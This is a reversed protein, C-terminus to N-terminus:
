QIKLIKKTESKGNLEYKVYYIGPHFGSLDIRELANANGKFVIQNQNNHISIIGGSESRDINIKLYNAAPNPHVEFYIKDTKGAKKDRKETEKQTSELSSLDQAMGKKTMLGADIHTYSQYPDFSFFKTTGIGNSHDVDSNMESNQSIKTFNLNKSSYYKIYFDGKPIGSFHIKGEENIGRTSMSKAKNDYLTAYVGSPIKGNDDQVGNANLDFWVDTIVKAGKYFGADINTVIESGMVQFTPSIYLGEFKSVDSNNDDYNDGLMPSSVYDHNVKYVIFYEGPPIKDFHLNEYGEISITKRYLVADNTYLSAEINILGSEDIDYIGDANHDEWIASIIGGTELLGVDVNPVSLESPSVTSMFMDSEGSPNIDCDLYDNENMDMETFDYDTDSINVMIKYEGEPIEQFAYLGLSNSQTTEIVNNMNDALSIIIGPIRAEDNQRIGDANRDNWVVSRLSPTSFYVGCDISELDAGHALSILPTKGSNDTDSDVNDDLGQDALTIAYEQPVVFQIFYLGQKLGEFQYQGESDTITTDIPIGFSRHIIVQIDSVGFEEEDRIGDQNEDLWVEDGISAPLYAGGAINKNIGGSSVAFLDTSGEEFLGTIDSDATDDGVNPTTFIYEEPYEFVLYYDTAKLNKFEFIGSIDDTTSTLTSELLDGSANHLNVIVGELGPDTLNIVGNGNLDIFAIGEISGNKTFGIDLDNIVGGSTYDLLVTCGSSDVDSDLQDAGINSKAFHFGSPLDACITYKGAPLDSFQYAGAADSMVTESIVGNESTVTIEIEEIGLENADQAGNNNADEWVFDGITLKNVLGLDINELDEFTSLFFSETVFEDASEIFDSDITEDVGVNPFTAIKDLLNSAQLTYFGEVLNEFIYIGETDSVTMDVLEGAQNELQFLISSIPLEDNDRIGNNNTDDWVTGTISSEMPIQYFLGADITLDTTGSLVEIQKTTGTNNTIDAVDSDVGDDGGQDAAVFQYFLPRIFQVTYKGPIINEILYYGSDLGGGQATTDSAIITGSEGILNVIVGDLGAENDNIGNENVDIFVQDGLFSLEYYGASTLNEEQFFTISITDTSGASFISTVDDDIDDDSGQNAATNIFSENEPTFVIYYQGSLNDRFNYNGSVDTDLTALLSDNLNYLDVKVNPLPDEDTQKIGDGNTDLWTTGELNVAGDILGADIGDLTVGDMVDFFSTSGVTNEGNVDSDLSPDTGVFANTFRYQDSPTFIIFYKGEDLGNFFYEGSENTNRFFLRQGNDDYLEVFVGPKLEDDSDQIGDENIDIWVEGRVNGNKFAYGADINNNCENGVLTFTNSTGIGNSNTISSNLGIASENIITFDYLEEEPIKIYYKGSDLSRFQYYGPAFSEPNPGTLVSELFDNQDNYLEILVENLGSEDSDQVGNGNEDLWVFNGVKPKKQYGASFSYNEEDPMLQFLDTSGFVISSSADSDSLDDGVNPITFLHDQPLEFVLYYSSAPIDKFSYFGGNDSNTIDVHENNSNYLIVEVGLVFSEDPDYKGNNNKDLFTFGGITAPKEVFGFDLSLNKTNSILTFSSSILKEDQVFVDSNRDIDEGVEFQTPSFRIETQIEIFYEGPPINEFLYLGVSDSTTTQISEGNSKILNLIVGFIGPESEDQLGNNNLDDWVFDGIASPYYYGADISDIVGGEAYSVMIPTNPVVDSDSQDDGNNPITSIYGGSTIFEINYDGAPLGSFAYFGENDTTAFYEIANSSTIKVEVGEIGPEGEQQIGDGNLDEWVYDGISLALNLGADINTLTDGSELNILDTTGIGFTGTIDSDQNDNGIDPFTFILSDIEEVVEVYYEGPLLNAFIYDGDDNTFTSLLFVGQVSYLNVLIDEIGPDNNNNSSDNNADFFVQGSIFAPECNTYNFKRCCTGQSSQKYFSEVCIEYEGFEAYSVGINIAYDEESTSILEFGQPIYWEYSILPDESNDVYFPVCAHTSCVEYLPTYYVIMEIHDIFVSIPEPLKNRVQLAYGFDRNNILEEILSIGWTDTPSGYRWKFDTSSTDRPWDKDIPLANDAKNHGIAEGNANLLKVLQSRVYGAGESHGEVILQIGNIKAGNPLSFGLNNGKFLTSRKNSSLSVFAREDDSIRIEKLDEWQQFFPFKIEEINNASRSQTSERPEFDVRIPCHSQGNISNINSILLFYICFCIGKLTYNEEKFGM